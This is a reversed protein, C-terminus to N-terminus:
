RRGCRRAARRRRRGDRRADLDADPWRRSAGGAGRAAIVAAGRVDELLGLAAAPRRRAAARHRALLQTAILAFGIRMLTAAAIGIFIAKRRLDPPLGAAALGIVIANDGALVLDILIVQVFAALVSPDLGFM